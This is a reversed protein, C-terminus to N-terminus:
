QQPFHPSMSKHHELERPFHPSRADPLALPSQSCTTNESTQHLNSFSRYTLILLHLKNVINLTNICLYGFRLILTQITSFNSRFYDAAKRRSYMQFFRFLTHFVKCTTHKSNKGSEQALRSIEAQRNIRGGSARFLPLFVAFVCCVCLM